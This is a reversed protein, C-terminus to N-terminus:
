WERCRANILLARNISSGVRSGVANGTNGDCQTGDLVYSVPVNNASAVSMEIM